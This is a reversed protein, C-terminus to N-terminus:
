HLPDKDRDLAEFDDGALVQDDVPVLVFLPERRCEIEIRIGTMKLGTREIAKVLEALRESIQDDELLHENDDSM